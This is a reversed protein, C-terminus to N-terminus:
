VQGWHKEYKNCSHDFDVVEGTVTCKTKGEDIEDETVGDMDALDCDGCHGDSNNEEPNVADFAASDIKDLMKAAAEIADHIDDYYDADVQEAFVQIEKDTLKILGEYFHVVKDYIALAVEDPIVEKEVTASTASVEIPKDHLQKNLQGIQKQYNQIEDQYEAIKLGLERVKVFSGNTKAQTLQQQLDHVTKNLACLNKSSQAHENNLEMKTRDAERKIAGLKVELDNNRKTEEIYKSNARLRQAEAEMYKKEIEKYQKHTTIDGSAVKESLEKPASPKSAAFLLSPQINEADEINHFNKMVYDFGNIYNYATKPTIGISEVWKQFTGKTKDHNALKDQAEKLEKGMAIVSKIRIETIRNAKEQLFAGTEEDVTSYDFPQVDNSAAAELATDEIIGSEKRWVSCDVEGFKNLYKKKASDGAILLACGENHECYYACTMEEKICRQSESVKGFVKGVEENKEESDKAIMATTKDVISTAGTEATGSACSGSGANMQSEETECVSAEKQNMFVAKELPCWDPSTDPNFDKDSAIKRQGEDFQYCYHTNPECPRKITRTGDDSVVSVYTNEGSFWHGRNCSGCKHKPVEKVEESGRKVFKGCAHAGSFCERSDIYTKEGDITVGKPHPAIELNTCEGHSYEGAKYYGCNGCIHERYTVGYKWLLYRNNVGIFGCGRMETARDIDHFDATDLTCNGGYNLCCQDECGKPLGCDRM